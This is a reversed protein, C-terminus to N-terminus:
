KQRNLLLRAYSTLRQEKLRLNSERVSKEVVPFMHNCACVYVLAKLKHSPKNPICRYFVKMNLDLAYLPINYQKCFDEIDYTSLGDFTDKQNFLEKLKEVTLSKLQPKYYKLLFPM